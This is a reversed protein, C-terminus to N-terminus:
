PLQLAARLTDPTLREAKFHASGIAILLTDNGAARVVRAVVSHVGPSLVSYIRATFTGTRDTRVDTRSPFSSPFATSTAELVFVTNNM